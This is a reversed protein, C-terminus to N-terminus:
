SRGEMAAELTTHALRRAAERDTMLTDTVVLGVNGDDDALADAGDIVLADLLGEYCQTVNSPSTGGVLRQMMRDLPGRVALGGILPSVAVARVRRGELAARIGPVALIPHISVFPNSPAIVIADAAAIADLVGPAPRAADAGDYILADYPVVTAGGERTARATRLGVRRAGEATFTVRKVDGGGIPELTAPVYGASSSVEVERCGALGAAVLALAVAAPARRRRRPGRRM